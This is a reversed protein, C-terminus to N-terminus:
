LTAIRQVGGHILMRRRSTGLHLLVCWGVLLREESCPFCSHLFPAACWQLRLSNKTLSHAHQGTEAPSESHSSYLETDAMNLVSVDLCVSFVLFWMLERPRLLERKRCTKRCCLWKRGVETGLISKGLVKKAEVRSYSGEQCLLFLAINIAINISISWLHLLFLVSNTTDMIIFGFFYFLIIFWTQLCAFTVPLCQHIRM